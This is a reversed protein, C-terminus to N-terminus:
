RSLTLTIAPSTRVGGQFNSGVAWIRVFITGEHKSDSSCEPFDDPKEVDLTTARSRTAFAGPGKSDDSNHRSITKEVPASSPDCVRDLVAHVEVDFVGQADRATAVAHLRDFDILNLHVNEDGGLASQVEYNRTISMPPWEDVTVQLTVDPLSPDYEPIMACASSALCCLLGSLLARNEVLGLRIMM